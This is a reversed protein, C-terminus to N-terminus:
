TLLFVTDKTQLIPLKPIWIEGIELSMWIVIDWGQPNEYNQFWPSRESSLTFSDMINKTSITTYTYVDKIMHWIYRPIIKNIM